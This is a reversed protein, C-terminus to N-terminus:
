CWQTWIVLGKTLCLAPGAGCGQASPLFMCACADHWVPSSVLAQLFEQLRSCNSNAIVVLSEIGSVEKAAPASDQRAEVAGPVGM